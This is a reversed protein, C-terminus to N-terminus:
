AGSTRPAASWRPSATKRLARPQYTYESHNVAAVAYGADALTEATVLHGLYSGGYRHSVIFLPLKPRTLLCDRVPFAIPASM